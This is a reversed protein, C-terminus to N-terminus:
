VQLRAAAGIGFPITYLTAITNLSYFFIFLILLFRVLSQFFFIQHIVILFNFYSVYWVSLVSTELQPNPLLGSLLVILEYSWWELSCDDVHFFLYIM